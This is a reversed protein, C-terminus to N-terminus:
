RPRSQLATETLGASDSLCLRRQRCPRIAMFALARTFLIPPKLWACRRMMPPASASSAHRGSLLPRVGYGGLLWNFIPTAVSWRRGVHAALASHAAGVSAKRFHRYLLAACFPIPRQM